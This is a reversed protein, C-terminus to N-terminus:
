IGKQVCQFTGDPCLGSIQYLRTENSYFPSRSMEKWEIICKLHIEDIVSDEMKVRGKEM